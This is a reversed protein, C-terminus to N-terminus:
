KGRNPTSPTWRRDFARAARRAGPARGAAPRPRAPRLKRAPVRAQLPAGRQIRPQPRHASALGRVQGCGRRSIEAAGAAHGRANGARRGRGGRALAHPCLCLSLPPSSLAPVAGGAGARRGAEGGAFAGANGHEGGERGETPYVRSPASFIGNGAFKGDKKACKGVRRWFAWVSPFERGNPPQLAPLNAARLRRRMGPYCVRLRFRKRSPAAAPPRSQQHGSLRTGDAKLGM